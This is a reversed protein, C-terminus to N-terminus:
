SALASHFPSPQALESQPNILCFAQCRHASFSPEGKDNEAMAASVCANHLHHVCIPRCVCLSLSLSFFKNSVGTADEGPQVLVCGYLDFSSSNNSRDAETFTTFNATQVYFIMEYASTIM